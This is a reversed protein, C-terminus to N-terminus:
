FKIDEICLNLFAFAKITIYPNRTKFVISRKVFVKLSKKFENSSKFQTVLVSYIELLCVHIKLLNKNFIKKFTM